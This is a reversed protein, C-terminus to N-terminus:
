ASMVQTLACRVASTTPKTTGENCTANLTVSGQTQVKLTYNSSWWSSSTGGCGVHLQVTAPLIAFDSESYTAAYHNTSTWSVAAWNGGTYSNWVWVGILAHYTCTVSGKVTFVTPTTPFREVKGFYVFETFGMAAATGTRYDGRGNLNENYEDVTITQVTGNTNYTINSVFAVHNTSPSVAAAGIQPTIGVPVANPAKAQIRAVETNYWQGGSGMIGTLPKGNYITNSFYMPNVGLTSLKWAVYSTCNRLYYNWPDAEGYAKNAPYLINKCHPDSPPCTTFGYDDTASDLTTAGVWPYNLANATGVAAEVHHARILTRAAEASQARIVSLAAGAVLVAFLLVVPIFKTRLVFAGVASTRTPRMM